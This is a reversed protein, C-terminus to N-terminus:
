KVLDVVSNVATELPVNKMFINGDSGVVYISPDVRM